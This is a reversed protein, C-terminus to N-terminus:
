RSYFEGVKQLDVPLSFEEKSPNGIIKIEFKERDIDMWSPTQYKKLTNALEKFPATNKSKDRISVTDGKKIEYSPINVKKKNVLFHGHSVFFRAKSRSSVLGGKFVVNDLRRELKDILFEVFGMGEKQPKSLAKKVSKKFETERLGYIWKVKQKELLQRGYESFQTRGGKKKKTQLFPRRIIGCKQSACRDGKLFLKQGVRRCTKCKSNEM